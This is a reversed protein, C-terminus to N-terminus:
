WRLSKVEGLASELTCSTHVRSELQTKCYALHRVYTPVFISLQRKRKGNTHVTHSLCERSTGPESMQVASSSSAVSVAM